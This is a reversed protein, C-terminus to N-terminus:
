RTDGPVLRRPMSDVVREVFVDLDGGEFLLGIVGAGAAADLDSQRDGILFSRGVDISQDAIARLLMGPAPKRDPHVMRYAPVVAEPHYPCYYYRDIFAGQAALRDSMHAHFARVAVEDYLGKAVGAQNTVVIVRYGADNLRRIAGPAGQTFRLDEVRHTHGADHNIVGDRDLFAAPRRDLVPLEARGKALAEPIGIDLFYGDMPRGGLRREAALAPFVDGEISCPLHDIRQLIARTLVYVGANILGSVGTGASKEAFRTVAGDSLTVLGYRSADAVERLAILAPLDTTEAEHALARLNVDFYSDGNLLLFRQDLHESAELLAGGTGRPEAEILVRVRAGAIERGEFRAAIQDGFHGALLLIDDFGQRAVNEILLDLFTRGGDIAMLPKPTARTADGLRTGKGGVLIAAQRVRTANAMTWTSPIANM